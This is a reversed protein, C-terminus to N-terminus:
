CPKPQFVGEGRTKLYGSGAIEGEVHVQIKWLELHELCGMGCASCRWAFSFDCTECLMPCNHSNFGGAECKDWKILSAYKGLYM